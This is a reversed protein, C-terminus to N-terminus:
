RSKHQLSPHHRSIRQVREVRAQLRAIEEGVSEIMKLQDAKRRETDVPTDGKRRNLLPWARWFRMCM